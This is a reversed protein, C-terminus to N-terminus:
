FQVLLSSVKQFIEKFIKRNFKWLIQLKGRAIYGFNNRITTNLRFGKKLAFRLHEFYQGKPFMDFQLQLSCCGPFPITYVLAIPKAKGM